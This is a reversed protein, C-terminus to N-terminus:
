KLKHHFVHCNPMSKEIRRIDEEAFATWRVYLQRLAPMLELVSASAGTVENGTLYLVQLKTLPALHAFEADDLTAYSLSLTELERLGGILKARDADIECRDLYLETLHRLGALSQIAASPKPHNRLDARIVHVFAKDGVMSEVLWRHWAPGNASVSVTEVGLEALNKSSAAQQRYPQVYISWIGMVLCCAAMAVLLTRLSYRSLRVLIRRPLWGGTLAPKAHEPPHHTIPM